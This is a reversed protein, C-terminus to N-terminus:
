SAPKAGYLTAELRSGFMVLIKFRRELRRSQAEATAGWLGQVGSEAEGVAFHSLRLVFLLGSICPYGRGSRGLASIAFFPLFKVRIEKRRETHGTVKELEIDRGLTYVDGIRIRRVRPGTSRCTGHELLSWDINSCPQKERGLPREARGKKECEEFRCRGHETM